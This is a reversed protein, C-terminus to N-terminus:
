RGTQRRRRWDLLLGGLAILGLTGPEPIATATVSFQPIVSSYEDWSSGNPSSYIFSPAAWGDSSTHDTTGALSWNYTGNVYTTDATLAIYYSGRSSLTLNPSATFTYIGGTAPDVSGSLTGISSGPFVGGDHPDQDYIRVTFGSPSSSAGTMELQISNLVYGNPNNGVVFWAALWSYTFGSVAWSGTSPQELNSWYTTPVQAQTIQPALLGFALATIGSILIRKM